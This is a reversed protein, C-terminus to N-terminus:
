LLTSGTVSAAGRPPLPLGPQLVTAAPASRPSGMPPVTRAPSGTQQPVVLPTTRPPTTRAPVVQVPVQTPVPVRLSSPSTRAPVVLPAAVSAPPAAFGGGLMVPAAVAPAAAQAVLQAALMASEQSARAEDLGLLLLAQKYTEASSSYLKPYSGNALNKKASGPGPVNIPATKAGSAEMRSVDLVKGAALGNYKEPVPKVRGGGRRASAAGGAVKKPKPVGKQSARYAAMALVQNLLVMDAAEKDKTNKRRGKTVTAESEVLARHVGKASEETIVNNPNLYVDFPSVQKGQARFAAADEDYAKRLEEMTGVVRPNILYVINRGKKRNNEFNRMSLRLTSRGASEGAKNYYPTTQKVSQNGGEKNYTVILGKSANDNAAQSFISIHPKTQRKKTSTQTAM